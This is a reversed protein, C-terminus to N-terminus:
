ELNFVLDLNWSLFFSLFLHVKTSHDLLEIQLTTDISLVLTGSSWEVDSDNFLSLSHFNLDFLESIIDCFFYNRVWGWFFCCISHFLLWLVYRCLILNFFRTAFNELHNSQLNCNSPAILLLSFENLNFDIISNILFM